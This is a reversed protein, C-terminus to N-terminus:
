NNNGLIAEAVILDHPYTIKINSVDGQVLHVDYGKLLYIKCGDTLIDKDEDSLSNYLERLKLAGFCQPTQAQYLESRDPISDIIVGKRSQFVTDTAPIVTGTAGYRRVAEINKNIIEDTVFPRVSDHTVLYTDDRLGDSEEIYDIARMLTENRTLGGCIVTIDTDTFLEKTYDVWDAPCLVIVKDININKSFKFVTHEIITKDGIRIYQKPKQAGMRSGIGGAAIVAYIM